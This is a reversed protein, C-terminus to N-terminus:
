VFSEESNPMKTAYLLELIKHVAMHENMMRYQMSSSGNLLCYFIANLEIMEGVNDLVRDISHMTWRSRKEGRARRANAYLKIPDVLVRTFSWAFIEVVFHIGWESEDVLHITHWCVVEFSIRNGNNIRSFRIILAFPVFNEFALPISRSNHQLFINGTGGGSCCITSLYHWRIPAIHTRAACASANVTNKKKKEEGNKRKKKKWNYIWANSDTVAIWTVHFLRFLFTCVYLVSDLPWVSGVCSLM